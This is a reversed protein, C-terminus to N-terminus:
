TSHPLRAPFVNGDIGAPRISIIQFFSLIPNYMAVIALLKLPFYAENKSLDRSKLMNVPLRQSHQAAVTELLLLSSTHLAVISDGRIAQKTLEKLWSIQVM